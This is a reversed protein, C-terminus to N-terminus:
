AVLKSCKISLELYANMDVTPLKLIENRYYLADVDCIRNLVIKGELIMAKSLIAIARRVDVEGPYFEEKASITWNNTLLPRNKRTFEHMTRNAHRVGRFVHANHTVLRADFSAKATAEDMDSMTAYIYNAGTLEHKAIWITHGRLKPDIGKEQIAKNTRRCILLNKENFFNNLRTVIKKLDNVTAGDVLHAYLLVESPDQKQYDRLATPLAHTRITKSPFIKSSIYFKGSAVHKYAFVTPGNGDYRYNVLSFQLNDIKM